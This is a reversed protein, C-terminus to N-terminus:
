DDERLANIDRLKRTQLLDVEGDNQEILTRGIREIDRRDEDLILGTRLLQDLVQDFHMTAPADRKQAAWFAVLVRLLPLCAIAQCELRMANRLIGGQKADPSEVFLFCIRGDSLPKVPTKFKIRNEGTVIVGGGPRKRGQPASPFPNRLNDFHDAEIVKWYRAKKRGWECSHARRDLLDAAFGDALDDAQYAPFRCVTQAQHPSLKDEAFRASTRDIRGCVLVRNLWPPSAYWIDAWEFATPDRIESSRSSSMILFLINPKSPAKIKSAINSEDHPAGVGAVWAGPPLV